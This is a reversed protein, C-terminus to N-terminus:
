EDKESNIEIYFTSGKGPRSNVSVTGGHMGVITKVYYLGLGYGKVQHLNGTPVRYFKNFVYRQNDRSIGIGNDSVSIRICEKGKPVCRVHIKADSGSYKLANDILNGVANAMHVRDVSAFMKEPGVTFEIASKRDTKLRFTRVVDHLLEGMDTMYAIYTKSNMGVIAKENIWWDTNARKIRREISREM